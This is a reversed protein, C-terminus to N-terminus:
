LRLFRFVITVSTTFEKEFFILSLFVFNYVSLINLNFFWIVKIFNDIVFLRSELSGIWLIIWFKLFTIFYNKMTLLTTFFKLVSVDLLDCLFDCIWFQCDSRSKTCPLIWYYLLNSLVCSVDYLRLDCRCAKHSQTLCLHLKLVVYLCLVYSYIEVWNYSRYFVIKFSIDTSFGCSQVVYFVYAM